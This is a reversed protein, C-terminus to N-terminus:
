HWNTYRPNRGTQWFMKELIIKDPNTDDGAASGDWNRANAARIKQFRITAERLTWQVCDTSRWNMRVIAEEQYDVDSQFM